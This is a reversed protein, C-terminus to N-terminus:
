RKVVVWAAIRAANTAAASRDAILGRRFVVRGRVSTRANDPKITQKSLRLDNPIGGLKSEVRRSTSRLPSWPATLRNRLRSRQRTSDRRCRRWTTLMSVCPSTTAVTLVSVILWTQDGRLSRRLENRTSAPGHVLDSVPHTFVVRPM